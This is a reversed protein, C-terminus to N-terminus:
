STTAPPHTSLLSSHRFSDRICMEQWGDEIVVNMNESTVAFMYDTDALMVSPVDFTGNNTTTVTYKRDRICMEIAARGSDAEFIETIEPVYKDVLMRIAKRTIQEDDAILLRYM